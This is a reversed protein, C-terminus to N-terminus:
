VVGVPQLDEDVPLAAVDEGVLRLHSGRVPHRDGSGSGPRAAGRPRDARPACSAPRRCPRGYLWGQGCGVGLREMLAAEAETEVGEAVVEADTARAFEVTARIAALSADSAAGSVLSRAIKM